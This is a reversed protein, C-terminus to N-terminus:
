ATALCGMPLMQAGTRATSTCPCRTARSSVSTTRRTTTRAHWRATTTRTCSMRWPAANRCPRPQPHPGLPLLPGRHPRPSPSLHCTRPDGGHGGHGRAGDRHMTTPQHHLALVPLLLPRHLDPVPIPASLHLPQHCNKFRSTSFHETKLYFFLVLPFPCPRHSGLWALRNSHPPDWGALKNRHLESHKSKTNSHSGLTSRRTNGRQEAWPM